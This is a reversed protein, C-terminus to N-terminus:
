AVPTRLRVLTGDGVSRWQVLECMQNAIWLGRSPGAAPAPWERGALPDDVCATCRLEVMLSAGDAWIRATRCGMEWAVAGAAFALEDIRAASAGLAPARTAIFHRVPLPDGGADVEAAPADVAPFPPPGGDLGPYADSEVAGGARRLRPHSHRAADVVDPALATTDYPCVLTFARTGAFARNLLAEHHQAEALGAADRGGYIPQGIGFLPPVDGSAGSRHGAVFERWLPIIRAPNAGIRTIDVWRVARAEGDLRLRLAEALEPLVAVLAPQGAETAGRVLPEAQMAFEAAGAHILAEHDFPPVATAPETPPPTEGSLSM